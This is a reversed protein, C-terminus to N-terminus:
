RFKFKSINRDGEKSKIVSNLMELAMKARDPPKSTEFGEFIINKLRKRDAIERCYKKAKKYNNLKILYQSKDIYKFKYTKQKGQPIHSNNSWFVSGPAILIRLFTRVLSSISVFNRLIYRLLLTTFGVLLVFSQYFVQEFSIHSASPKLCTDVMLQCKATDFSEVMGGHPMCHVFNVIPINTDIEKMCDKSELDKEM